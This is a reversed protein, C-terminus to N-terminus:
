VRILGCDIALRVLQVTNQLGLKRMISAHHVGVTKPSISIIEAIQLVSSGEALLTFIQFERQSLIHLPHKDGSSQVSDSLMNSALKADIYPEGQSIRHVAELLQEPGCQKTLYGTAGMDLVRKVMIESSHMSLALINATPNKSKIRYITELGGIGPMNIDIIAMDPQCEQYLVCGTEGDGAEALVMIKKTSELFYRYGARVVPHDDILILTILKTKM